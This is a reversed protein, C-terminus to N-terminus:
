GFPSVYGDGRGVDPVLVPVVVSGVLVVWLGVALPVMGGAALSLSSWCVLPIYDQQDTM